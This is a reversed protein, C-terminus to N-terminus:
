ALRARGGAGGSSGRFPTSSRAPPLRSAHLGRHLFVCRRGGAFEVLEPQAIFEAGQARLDGIRGREIRDDAEGEVQRPLELRAINGEVLQLREGPAQHVAGAHLTRAVQALADAEDIASRGVLFEGLEDFAGGRRGVEFGELRPPLAGAGADHQGRMRGEAQGVRQRLADDFNGNGVIDIGVRADAHRVPGVVVDVEGVLMAAGLVGNLVQAVGVDLQEVTEEASGGIAEAVLGILQAGLQRREGAPDAVVEVSAGVDVPALREDQAQLLLAGREGVHALAEEAQLVIKGGVALRLPNGALDGALEVQGDGGDVLLDFGEVLHHRRIRRQGLGGVDDGPRVSVVDRGDLRDDAQQARQDLRQRGALAFAAGGYQGTEHLRRAEAGRMNVHADVGHLEVVGEAGEHMLRPRAVQRFALREGADDAHDLRRAVLRHVELREVELRRRRDALEREDGLDLLVDIALRRDAEEDGLGFGRRRHQDGDEEGRQEADVVDGVHRREEFRREAEFGAGADDLAQELLLRVDAVHLAPLTERQLRAEGVGAAEDALDRRREGDLAQM